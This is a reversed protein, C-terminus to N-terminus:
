YVWTPQLKLRLEVPLESMPKTLVYLTFSILLTTVEVSKHRKLLFQCLLSSSKYSTLYSSETGRSITTTTIFVFPFTLRKTSSYSTSYGQPNDRCEVTTTRDRIISRNFQKSRHGQTEGRVLCTQIPRRCEM